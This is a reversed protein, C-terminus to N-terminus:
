IEGRSHSSVRSKSAGETNPRAEPAALTKSVADADSASSSSALSSADRAEETASPRGSEGALGAAVSVVIGYDGDAESTEDSSPMLMSVPSGCEGGNGATRCGASALARSIGADPLVDPEPTESSNSKSGCM